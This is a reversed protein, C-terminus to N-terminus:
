DLSVTALLNLSIADPNTRTRSCDMGGSIAHLRCRCRDDCGSRAVAHIRYVTEAITRVLTNIRDQNGADFRRMAPEPDIGM